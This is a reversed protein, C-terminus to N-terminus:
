EASNNDYYKKIVEQVGLKKLEKLLDIVDNIADGYGIDYQDDSVYCRQFLEDEAWERDEEPVDFHEIAVDVADDLDIFWKREM